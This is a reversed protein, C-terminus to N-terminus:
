FLLKKVRQIEAELLWLQNIKIFHVMVHQVLLYGVEDTKLYKVFVETNPKHGIASFYGTCNIESIDDTKC